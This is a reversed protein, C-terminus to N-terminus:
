SAAEATRVVQINPGPARRTFKSLVEDRDGFEQMRGHRIVLLKDVAALASPRHAVIVVVGQRAKVEHIARTLAEEGESDLNSNPEDLLVFFPDNYLARALAIRQRQGGSLAAGGEGIQTGYGDPLQMILEHVGASKAAKLVASPEVNPDFRAINRAVSGAFLEVDQPLYGIHRGLDEEAWHTLPAGDLSVFGRAAPWAGVLARALSSKGSGSPGIVGVASGKQIEFSVDQLVARTVGPPAVALNAVSVKACPAPLPLRAEPTPLLIFAKSLRDWSQRAGIFSKWHAIVQEVPALARATLISSAIIVGGSAEQRIVLLAGLGLVASQLIMRLIKSLGGLGGAVDAARLQARTQRENVETWVRLMSNQMGMAKLVEANRRSAEVLRQREAGAVSAAQVPARTLTETFFTIAILLLGGFTTLLGILPHFAFCIALYLPMWPLDFFAAPGAGSAFSRIQDLDRLPAAAQTASVLPLRATIEYARATLRRDILGGIRVLVRSRLIDLFGQFLYLVAALAALGALTPISRSPIVRDYVQLMFFSGTLYLVNVVGSVVAVGALPRRCLAIVQELEPARTMRGSNQRAQKVDM